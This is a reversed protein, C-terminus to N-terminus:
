CPFLSTNPFLTTNPIPCAYVSVSLTCSPTVNGVFSALLTVSQTVGVNISNAPAQQALLSSFFQMWTTDYPGQVATIQYWINLMDIQDSIVVNEILMQANNLGHAPLNVTILQGQAYGSALTSFQIITGQVGYRTLLQSAETLGNGISTLTADSIADDVIGSTGDVTAQYAIQAASQSVIVSPFQGVYVVQLTDTSILKTQASDQTVINDGQAWYFQSGTAGKIGVTQAAGNVTITPTANLAYGMTWSQTNSDGKRVETQSVTQAVGGLIYQSNRYTPNARQVYPPNLVQDVKTGDVVTSNVVTTYPVFYLQKNQDIQWYYPVGSASAAKVLADLADSVKSYVFTAQPILGVNGGPYLTTDPYLTNSPTIGDYIQGVSVGEQSLLNIVIDQAIYGCTKNTYSAAIRRKDALYHQDVCTITHLLSNQFGPKREKPTTIYGSFALTNSADYITVPQYQQFHTATTTRVTFTAQGRRGITNTVNLTGAVVYVAQGSILVSYAM